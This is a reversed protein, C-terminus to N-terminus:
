QMKHVDNKLIIMMIQLGCLIVVFLSEDKADTRNSLVQDTMHYAVASRGSGEIACWLDPSNPWLPKLDKKM